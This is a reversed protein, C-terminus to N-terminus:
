WGRIEKQELAVPISDHAWLRRRRQMAQPARHSPEASGGDQRYNAARAAGCPVPSIGSSAAGHLIQGLRFGERSLPIDFRVAGRLPIPGPIDERDRIEGGSQLWIPVETFLEVSAEVISKRANSCAARRSPLADEPNSARAGPRGRACPREVPRELVGATCGVGRPSEQM